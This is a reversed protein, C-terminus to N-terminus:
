IYGNIQKAIRREVEGAAEMSKDSISIYVKLIPETGFPRIVVSSNGELLYKLVDSKPLDDLGKSYDLIKEVKKGGFEDVGEHFKKMSEQMTTFGAAGDFKFSHLTNLRYGYIRYLEDLKELLSVGHSKYYVFMEAIM